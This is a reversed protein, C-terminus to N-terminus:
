SDGVSNGLTIGMRKAKKELRARDASRLSELIDESLLTPATAVRALSEAVTYTRSSKLEVWNGGNPSLEPCVTHVIRMWTPKTRVDEADFPNQRTRDLISCNLMDQDTDCMLEVFEEPLLRESGYRDTMMYDGHTFMLAQGNPYERHMTGAMDRWRLFVDMISEGGDLRAHLPDATKNRYTDPYFREQDAKSLKGYLGWDREIIRDEPTLGVQEAGAAYCATEFTRLFPSVYIVDFNALAGIKRRIWDGANKAQEVGLPSLRQMWDPRSYIEAVVEPDLDAILEKQVVNAESQGHRVLVRRVPMTM